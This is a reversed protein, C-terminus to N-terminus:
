KVLFFEVRRNKWRNPYDSDPVVPDLAGVGTALIRGASLGREVLADKIARARSESLPVLVARQEADGKAKNDWNIMVAHGELRMQYGPFSGLKAALLDLTKLNQAARDAPVDRYDATFPKFYISSVRIRYGDGVKVVLIDTNLDKRVGGVNGFEDRLRVDIPYVSASEVLEGDTGVGDWVFPDPPWPGRRSLFVGEGPDYVTMSWSDIRAYNSAGDLTITLTDDNGDGDPSFLETSLGISGGPPTLDLVFGGSEEVAPSYVYGYDVTMVAKYRGEPAYSGGAGKGDWSLRAPVSRGAGSFTRAVLGATDVVDVKWSKVSPLDGIEVSFLEEPSTSDGTPAFGASMAKIASPETAPGIDEITLSGSIDGVNGYEDQVKATVKYQTGPALAEGSGSKGDWSVKNNPWNAKFDAVPGGRVGFIGMTWGTIQAFASRAQLTLTVPKRPGLTALDVTPPDVTVSGKPPTTVLSFNGSKVISPRFAKGYEVVLVAYYSGEPALKGSDDRGDWRVFDPADAAGGRFERIAGRQASMIQVMWIQVSEKSGITTAIDLSNKVSTSTPSFGHRRAAISSNEAGPVDAVAFAGKFASSNGFIDRAVLIATFREAVEVYSGQDTKGDWVAQNNPWAGSLRKVQGGVANYIDITWGAVEALGPRVAVAVAVPKTVGGVAYDFRAPNPAFSGVPPNIDLLFPKSSSISKRFAEGYDESLVATYHGEAALAGSDDKGDWTVAEPLNTADGSFTKVAKGATDSIGVTWSKLSAADGFSIAFRMRQFRPDGAPALGKAEAQISGADADGVDPKGTDPKVAEASTTEQPAPVAKPKSACGGIAAALLGLAIM